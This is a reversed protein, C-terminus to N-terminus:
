CSGVVTSDYAVHEPLHAYKARLADLDIFIGPLEALERSLKSMLSHAFIYRADLMAARGPGHQARLTEHIYTVRILDRIKDEQEPTFM